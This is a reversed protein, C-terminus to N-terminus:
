RGRARIDAFESRLDDPDYRIPDIGHEMCLDLFDVRGLGLLRAAQAMSLGGSRCRELILLRRAESALALTSSGEAVEPPIEITLRVPLALM